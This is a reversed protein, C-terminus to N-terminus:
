RCGARRRRRRPCATPQVPHRPPPDTLTALRLAVLQACILRSRAAAFLAGATLVVWPSILTGTCSHYPANEYDNYDGTANLVHLSALYPVVEDVRTGWAIHPHPAATAAARAQLARSPRSSELSRRAARAGSPFAAVAVAITILIASCRFPAM